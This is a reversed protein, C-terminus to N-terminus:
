KSNSWTIVTSARRSDAINKKDHGPSQISIKAKLGLKQLYLAVTKARWYSLGQVNPSTPTPQVWGTVKVLIQSQSTLKSRLERYKAKIIEKNKSDLTASNMNYYIDFAM